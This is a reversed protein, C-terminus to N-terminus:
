RPSCRVTAESLSLRPQRLRRPRRTRGGSFRRPSDVQLFAAHVRQLLRYVDRLNVASARENWQAESLFTSLPDAAWAPLAQAGM